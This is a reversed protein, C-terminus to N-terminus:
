PPLNNSFQIKQNSTFFGLILLLKLMLMIFTISDYPSLSKLKNEVILFACERVVPCGKHTKGTDKSYTVCLDLHYYERKVTWGQPWVGSIGLMRSMLQEFVQRYNIGLWYLFNSHFLEKSGGSLYLMPSAKLENMTKMACFQAYKSITKKNM